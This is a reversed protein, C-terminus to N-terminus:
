HLPKNNLRNRKCYEREDRYHFTGLRVRRRRRAALRCTDDDWPDRKAHAKIDDDGQHYAETEQSHSRERPPCEGWLHRARAHADSCHEDLGRRRNGDKPDTEDDYRGPILRDDKRKCIDPGHEANLRLGERAGM